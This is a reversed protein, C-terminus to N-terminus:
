TVVRTGYLWVKLGKAGTGATDIDFTLEADDAIASDSIVAATAATTSTLESADITLKTSLVTTGTEKINVTVLGSSSVTTLSARVATLTFAYPARVTVKANGTTITTVEDSLAVGISVPFTAKAVKADLATQTATSVPKNADSTNDVNGLGVDGKALNTGNIQYTQGTPINVTGNDTITVSSNKVTDGTTGSFRAVATDTSTTPGRVVSVNAIAIAYDSELATNMEEYKSNLPLEGAYTGIKAIKGKFDQSGNYAVGVTWGSANGGGGVGTLISSKIGNVVVYSSAGNLYVIVVSAVNESIILSSDQSGSVNLAGVADSSSITIGNRSGATQADILTRTSSQTDPVIVAMISMPQDPPNYSVTQLYDDVGDFEIASKGNLAAVSARYTPTGVVTSLPRSNGSSDRLGTGNVLAAGDAPPTWEPDEADWFTSWTIDRAYDFASNDQGTNIVKWNNGDSLFQWVYNPSNTSVSPQGDITQSNSTLVLFPNDSTGTNKATFPEGIHNRADPLTLAIGNNTTDAFIVSDDYTATYNATIDKVARSGYRQAVRNSAGILWSSKVEALTKMGLDNLHLDDESADITAILNPDLINGLMNYWDLVGCGKEKAVQYMARRFVLWQPNDTIHPVELFITPPKPCKTRIEDIGDRLYQRWDDVDVGFIIDNGMCEIFVLTPPLVGSRMGDYQTRTTGAFMQSTQYGVHGANIVRVGNFNGDFFYVGEVTGKTNTSTNVSTGTIRITHTGRTLQGSDWMYSNLSTGNNSLGTVVDIGDLSVKFTGSLSAGKPYLVYIRDCVQTTEAYANQDFIGAFLGPGYSNSINTVTGTTTWIDSFRYSNSGLPVYGVSNGKIGLYENLSKEFLNTWIKSRNSAYAGATYSDGICWINLPTTGRNGIGVRWNIFEQGYRAWPSGPGDVFVDEFDELAQQTAADASDDVVFSDATDYTGGSAPAWTTSGNAQKTLVDGTAASSAPSSGIGVKQDLAVIEQELKGHVQSHTPTTRGLAKDSLAPVDTPTHIAGPYDAAPNSMPENYGM